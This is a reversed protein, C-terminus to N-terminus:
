MTRLSSSSWNRAWSRWAAPILGFPSVSRASLKYLQRGHRSHLSFGAHQGTVLPHEDVAFQLECAASRCEVDDMRGAFLHGTLGGVARDLVHRARDARRPPREVLGVPRAIQLEAVVAQGLQVVRQFAVLLPQAPDQDGLDAARDRHRPLWISLGM